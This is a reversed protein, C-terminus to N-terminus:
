AVRAARSRLVLFLGGAILLAALAMKGSTSAAPIPVFNCTANNGPSWNGVQGLDALPGFNGGGIACQPDGVDVLQSGWLRIGRAVVTNNTDLVVPTLGNAHLTIHGVAEDGEPISGGEFEYIAFGDGGWTNCYSLTYGPPPTIHGDGINEGCAADGNGKAVAIWFKGLAGAGPSNTNQVKYRFTCCNTILDPASVLEATILPPNPLPGFSCFEHCMTMDFEIEDDPRVYPNAPPATTQLTLLDTNPSATEWCFFCSNSADNNFAEFWYNRLAFVGIPAPFVYTMENNLFNGVATQLVEGTNTRTYTGPSSPSVNTFEAVLTAPIGNSDEWYRITWRDQAPLSIGPTCDVFNPGVPQTMIGLWTVSRIEGNSTLIFNDTIRQSGGPATTDSFGCITTNPATSDHLENTQCSQPTPSDLCDVCLGNLIDCVGNPESCNANTLCDVCMGIGTNCIPTPESCDGSNVCVGGAALPRIVVDSRPTGPAPVVHDIPPAVQVGEFSRMQGDAPFSVLWTAGVAVAMIFIGRTNHKLESM